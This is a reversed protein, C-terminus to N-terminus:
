KKPPSLIFIPRAYPSHKEPTLPTFGPKRSIKPKPKESLFAAAGNLLAEDIFELGNKKEGKLAAFLFGPQVDKSSYAIGQIEERENGNFRVRPVGKLLDKLKM